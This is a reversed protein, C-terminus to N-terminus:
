QQGRFMGEMASVAKELSQAGGNAVSPPNGTVFM